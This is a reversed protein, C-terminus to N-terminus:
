NQLFDLIEVNIEKERKEKGDEAIQPNINTQSLIYILTIHHQKITEKYWTNSCRKRTKDYYVNNHINGDTSKDITM